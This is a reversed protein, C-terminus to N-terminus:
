VRHSCMQKTGQAPAGQTEHDGHCNRLFPHHDGNGATTRGSLPGVSSQGSPLESAVRGGPGGTGQRGDTRPSVWEGQAPVAVTPHTSEGRTCASPMPQLPAVADTQRTRQKRRFYTGLHSLATAGPQAAGESGWTLQQDPQEELWKSDPKIKSYYRPLHLQYHGM